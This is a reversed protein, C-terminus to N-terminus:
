CLFSRDSVLRKRQIPTMESQSMAPIIKRQNASGPEENEQLGKEEEVIVPPAGNIQSCFSFLNFLFVV